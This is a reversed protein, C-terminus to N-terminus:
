WSPFGTRPKTRTRHMPGSTKTQVTEQLRVSWRFKFFYSCFQSKELILLFSRTPDIKVQWFGSFHSNIKFKEFDVFHRTQFDIDGTMFFTSVDFKSLLYVKNHPHSHTSWWLLFHRWWRGIMHSQSIEQDRTVSPSNYFTPLLFCYRQCFNMTCKMMPPLLTM